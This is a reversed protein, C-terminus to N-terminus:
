KIEQACTDCEESMGRHNGERWGGYIFLKIKGKMFLGGVGGGTMREFDRM